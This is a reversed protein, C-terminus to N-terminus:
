RKNSAKWINRFLRTNRAHQTAETTHVFPKKQELINIGKTVTHGGETRM